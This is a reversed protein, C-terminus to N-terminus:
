APVKFLWLTCVSRGNLIAHNEISRCGLGRAFAGALGGSTGYIGVKWGKAMQALRTGFQHYLPMLGRENSLREGYPPNTVLWGPELGSLDLERADLCNPELFRGLGAAQVTQRSLDVVEERRESLLVPAPLEALMQRRARERLASLLERRHGIWSQFAFKRNLGPPRGIARHAAEIALTGSGCFPDCFPKSSDVGAALLLGAAVAENLPAKPQIPRYGRKHLSQGASDLSLTMEEGVIRLHIPIMPDYPDVSPRKGGSRERFQDCIADKVRRSAFQSHTIAGDRVSADVALTQEVRMYASWDVQRTAEYLSDTDSIKARHIPVLVRVATRLWLNARCLGEEDARFGVGGRSIACPGLDLSELEAALFRELGIACPAYCEVPWQFMQKKWFNVFEPGRLGKGGM